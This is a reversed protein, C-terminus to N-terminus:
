PAFVLGEPPFRLRVREGKVEIVDDFHTFHRQSLVFVGEPEEALKALFGSLPQGSSLHVALRRFLKPLVPHRDTLTALGNITVGRSKDAPWLGKRAKRAAVIATTFADRLDVFLTQYYTPYAHGAAALQYNISKKLMTADLHVSSGDAKAAKGAFVFSVPRRNKETARSLVYGPVGDRASTVRGRTPGWEVNTIGAAALTFDTAADALALPQHHGHFHTELTDIGEFRLQANGNADLKVTPGSLKSWLAKNKAKFKLSDGDPAYNVVHLTGKILTFPM